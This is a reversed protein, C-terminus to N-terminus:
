ADREEAESGYWIEDKFVINDLLGHQAVSDSV